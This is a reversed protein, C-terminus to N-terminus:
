VSNRNEDCISLEQIVSARDRAYGGIDVPKRDGVDSYDGERVRVADIYLFPGDDIANNFVVEVQLPRM